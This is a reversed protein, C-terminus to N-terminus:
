YIFNPKPSKQCDALIIRLFPLNVVGERNLAGFALNHEGLLVFKHSSSKELLKLRSSESIQKGTKGQPFLRFYIIRM